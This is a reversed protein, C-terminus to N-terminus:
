ADDLVVLIQGATVADGERALLQEVRGPFKSAVTVDDAEVRGNAQVLGEPLRNSEAWRHYAAYLGAILASCVLVM